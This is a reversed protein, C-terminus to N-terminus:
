KKEKLSFIRLDEMEGGTVERYRSLFPPIDHSKGWFFYYDIDFKKLERELEEDSINERAQGFYRGQLWYALRFTRHWSDHITRQVNQRNSAINGQLHYREKLETGLTHM